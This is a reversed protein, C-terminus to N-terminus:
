PSDRPGPLARRSGRPPLAASRARRLSDRRAALGAELGVFHRSAGENRAVASPMAAHAALSRARIDRLSEPARVRRGGELVPVLLETFTADGPLTFTRAADEPDVLTPGPLDADVPVDGRDVLADAVWRGAGDVYRRLSLRGPISNKAPTESLKMRPEWRGGEFVAGQKYVGGLAPQDYATVLRTGVGWTTIKAGQRKLAAIRYEDLDNSAVIAVDEFGADDLLRRAQKSLAALDGSDLRIGRLAQGRARMERAVEIATRVGTLTDYTDVLFIAGEPFADAYARFATAEDAFSTVWSHAHTGAVPIGLAQGALVHSTANTGGIYAARSAGMAGDPGQARRLGFELVPERIGEANTAARGVRAAKTAVLTQFNLFTLLATEVLQAQWLPGEVRLLPEHPFVVTGEPVAAIDLRLMASRLMDLFPGPFLPAGGPQTLGALYRLDEEGFRLNELWDLADGLGAAIAYAGGFPARRYFLHFAAPQEHIGARWYGCCMTLQYLDTLLTQPM